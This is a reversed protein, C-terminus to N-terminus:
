DSNDEESEAHPGSIFEYAEILDLLLTEYSKENKKNKQLMAYWPGPSNMVDPGGQWNQELEDRLIKENGSELRSRFYLYELTSTQRGLKLSQRLQYLQSRPFDSEKLVQVTDIFGCLEHLTFPRMTLSDGKDTKYFQQRFDNLESAIMLLSKLSFFDVTGGSYGFKTKLMKARTKASKLLKGALDEMFAIPMHENAIVLGLSMSFQPLQSDAGNEWQQRQYRQATNPCKAKENEYVSRSMFTEDFNIGIEYAIELAKDGPVILILDDGGISIIEFPFVYRPNDDKIEIPKLKALAKFTAEQMAVFVRESFQRYQAATQIKELYGGMNNGDAYIFAIFGEPDSAKGIDSLDNPGDPPKKYNLSLDPSSAVYENFLSIWDTLRYNGGGDQEAPSWQLGKTFPVLENIKLQKKSARGTIYKRWCAECLQQDTSIEPIHIVPRRDCSNCTQSYPDREIFVPLDRSTKRHLMQNGERRKFKAMALKSTLEGFTKKSFFNPAEKGGFYNEIVRGVETEASQGTEHFEEIWFREPNLGYQLELLDFTNGVAVSNSTLTEQTYIREIEDAIDHVISAPTFALCDGGASYIVCERASLSHGSRKRFNKQIDESRKPDELSKRGLLAPLYEINIRDLLTSAGRIEPLKASEFVYGKIKTAGGSVLGVQRVKLATYQKLQHTSFSARADVPSHESAVTKAAHVIQACVDGDSEPAIASTLLGAWVADYVDDLGDEKWTATLASLRLQDLIDTDSKYGNDYGLCYAIASATLAHDAVTAGPLSRCPMWRFSRFSLEGDAGVRGQWLVDLQPLLLEIMFSVRETIRQEPWDRIHAATQEVVTDWDEQTIGFQDGLILDTWCYHIQQGEKLLKGTKWDRTM